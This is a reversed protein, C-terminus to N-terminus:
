MKRLYCPDIEVGGFAQLILKARQRPRASRIKGILGALPGAMIEVDDGQSFPSKEAVFDFMGAQEAMRLQAIFQDPIRVPVDLSKLIDHVHWLNHINGWDDCERDFRVFVYPGFLPRIQEIKRQRAIRHSREVPVFTEFGLDLIDSEIAFCHGFRPDSKRHMRAMDVFAVFWARGSSFSAPIVPAYGTATVAIIGHM